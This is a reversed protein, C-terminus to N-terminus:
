RKEEKKKQTTFHEKLTEKKEETKTESFKNDKTFDPGWVDRVYSYSAMYNICMKRIHYM